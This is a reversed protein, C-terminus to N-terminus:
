DRDEWCARMGDLLGQYITAHLGLQVADLADHARQKIHFLNLTLANALNVSSYVPDFGGFLSLIKQSRPSVLFFMQIEIDSNELLIFRFQKLAAAFEGPGYGFISPAVPCPLFSYGFCCESVTGEVPPHFSSLYEKHVLVYSSMKPMKALWGPSLHLGPIYRFFDNVVAEMVVWQYKTGIESLDLPLGQPFVGYDDQGELKYYLPIFTFGGPLGDPAPHTWHSRQLFQRHIFSQLSSEPMRVLKGNRPYRSLWACGQVTAQSGERLRLVASDATLKPWPATTEATALKKDMPLTDYFCSLGPPPERIFSAAFGSSVKAKWWSLLEAARQFGLEANEILFRDKPSLSKLSAM